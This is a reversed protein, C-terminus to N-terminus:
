RQPAPPPAKGELAAIGGEIMPRYSTGAPTLELAQRWLGVAEERKGSRALALGEFFLPAPLKPALEKARAFALTAAPTVMGAHDVLANGLGVYLGADQPHEKLGARIVGVASATDGRSAFGDAITLWRDAFNFRGLMAQRPETLPLPPARRGAQKPAGALSPRGQLAYGASGIMLAALSLQLAPGRLKGAWWLGFGTLAVLAVLLALGM